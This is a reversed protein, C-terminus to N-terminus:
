PSLTRSVGDLAPFSNLWFVSHSVMEVIMRAPMRNFPLSNYTSRTRDKITRIYREVEPVHEDNAVTNLTIHLGALDGRIPEFQGDMLIHTVCFGRRRYIDRVGKIAQIITPSKQNMIMEVTGFKLSRSITVFFSIKNVFMIDGALSLM